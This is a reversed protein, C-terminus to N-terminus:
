PGPLGSAGPCGANGPFLEKETTCKLELLLPLSAWISPTLRHVSTRSSLLRPKGSAYASQRTDAAELYLCTPALWCIYIKLRGCFIGFLIM